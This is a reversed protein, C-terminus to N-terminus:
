RLELLDTQQIQTVLTGLMTQVEEETLTKEFSQFVLRYAISIRGDKEFQDFVYPDRVCYQKAFADVLTDLVAIAEKSQIWVAIDRVVFPYTSWPVFPETNYTFQPPVVLPVAYKEIFADLTLEEFTGKDGTAVHIEETGKSFVTGIEFLRITSLGLVPMNLRNKEYSEKLGDSLNTRLASKDKPGYAVYVEGKKCFTYNMVERFGNQALWWKTARVKDYESPQVQPVFPLPQAIIHEYGIVRGIEDAIDHVGVIDIREFPVTLLFVEDAVTYAYNYRDFVEAVLTSTIYPGLIRVIDQITFSITRQEQKNPYIDSVGVIGGGALETILAAVACASEYAIDPSLDNEFRKSADTILGMRRSTKRISIPDFNAVEVIVSTTDTDVEGTKGGKVGAIAIAGLYDAIVLDNEKLVKEEESLTIIKEGEHATRVVIGGDVKKTDFAHVPQGRDFLVYNTADVINNISRAGISELAERLWAPSPGVAVGDIKVAIYRRCRDSQVEIKTDLAKEPLAPQTYPKRTLGCLGAIERAMGYHSLCDHARDPLVNIDFITDGRHAEVGEVEFSKDHIVKELDKPSPLKEEIHKQIWNYSYKM